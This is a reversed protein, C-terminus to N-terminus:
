ESVDYGVFLENGVSIGHEVRLYASGVAHGVALGHAMNTGPLEALVVLRFFLFSCSLSGSKRVWLQIDM